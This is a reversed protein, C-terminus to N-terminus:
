LIEVDFVKKDAPPVSKEWPRVYKFSIKSKGTGRAKFKWEEKGGSGVLDTKQPVYVLGAQKIKNGDLPRDIQWQYGTTRNSSLLIIFEDGVNLKLVGTSRAALKSYLYAGAGIVVLVICLIAILKLIKM